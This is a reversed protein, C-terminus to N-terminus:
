AAKDGKCTRNYIPFVASEETGFRQRIVTAVTRFSSASVAPTSKELGEFFRKVAASQVTMNSAFIRTLQAGPADAM